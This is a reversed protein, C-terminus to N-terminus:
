KMEKGAPLAAEITRIAYNIGAQFRATDDSRMFARPTQEARLNKLASLYGARAAPLTPCNAILRYVWGERHGAINFEERITREPKTLEPM